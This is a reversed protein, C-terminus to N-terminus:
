IKQYVLVARVDIFTRLKAAIREAVDPALGEVQIDVQLEGDPSRVGHWREPVLSRQAFATALRPLTGPEPSATISFCATGACARPAANENSPFSSTRDPSLM